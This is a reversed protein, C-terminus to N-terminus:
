QVNDSTEISRCDNAVEHLLPASYRAIGAVPNTVPMSVIVPIRSTTALSYDALDM